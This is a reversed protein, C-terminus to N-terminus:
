KNGPSSAIETGAAGAEARYRQIVERGFGALRVPASAAGPAEAEGAEAALRAAFQQVILDAVGLGGNQGAMNPALEEDYLQRYYKIEGKNDILDSELVTNRMSRLLAGVFLAEFEQAVKRLGALQEDAGAPTSPGAPGSANAPPRAGLNAIGDM